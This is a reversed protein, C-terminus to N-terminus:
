FFQKLEKVIQQTCNFNFSHSLHGYALLFYLNVRLLILATYLTVAYIIVM